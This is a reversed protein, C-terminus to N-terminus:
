YWETYPEGLPNFKMGRISAPDGFRLENFSDLSFYVIDGTFTNRKTTFECGSECSFGAILGNEYVPNLKKCKCGPTPCEELTFPELEESASGDRINQKRMFEDFSPPQM